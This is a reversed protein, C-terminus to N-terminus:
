ELTFFARDCNERVPPCTFDWCDSSVDYSSVYALLLTFEPEAVGVIEDVDREDDALRAGEASM